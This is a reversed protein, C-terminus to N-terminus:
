TRIIIALAKIGIIFVISKPLTSVFNGEEIKPPIIIPIVLM